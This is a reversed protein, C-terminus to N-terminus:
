CFCLSLSPASEGKCGEFSILVELVKIESVWGGSSSSLSNRNNLGGLTHYKTVPAGASECIPFVEGM